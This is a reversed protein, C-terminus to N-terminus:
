NGINQMHKGADSVDKGAGRAANCGALAGTLLIVALIALTIKKM